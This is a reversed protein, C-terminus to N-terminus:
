KFAKQVSLGFSRHFRIFDKKYKGYQYNYDAPNEGWLLVPICRVVMPKPGLWPKM